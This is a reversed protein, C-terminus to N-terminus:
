RLAEPWDAEDMPECPDYNIKVGRAIEPHKQLPTNRTRIPVLEAVPVGNRCIRVTEHRLEVSAIFQSLKTKAEHVNALIM